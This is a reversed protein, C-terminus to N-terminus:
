SVVVKPSPSVHSFFVVLMRYLFFYLPAHAEGSCSLIGCWWLHLLLDPQEPCREGDREEVAQDAEPAAVASAPQRRTGPRERDDAVREVQAAAVEVVRQGAERAGVAGDHAELQAGGRGHDDRRQVGRPLGEGPLVPAEGLAVGHVGDAREPPGVAGQEVHGAGVRKPLQLAADQGRVDEGRAAEGRRAADALALHAVQHGVEARAGPLLHVYALGQAAAHDAEHAAGGEGDVHDVHVGGAALRRV